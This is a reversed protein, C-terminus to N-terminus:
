ITTQITLEHEEIASIAREIHIMLLPHKGTEELVIPEDKGKFRTVTMSGGVLEVLCNKYVTTYTTNANWNSSEIFRLAELAEM